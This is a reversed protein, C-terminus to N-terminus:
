LCVSEPEYRTVVTALGVLHAEGSSTTAPPTTSNGSVGSKPDPPAGTNLLVGRAPQFGTEGVLGILPPRKPGGPLRSEPQHPTRVGQGGGITPLSGMGNVANNYCM